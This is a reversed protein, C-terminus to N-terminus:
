ISEVSSRNIFAVAVATLIMGVTDFVIQKAVFTGPLPQTAYNNLYFPITILLVAAIGFMVGQSLWPVGQSIGQRYIWAFAFGKVLYTVLLFPFFTHVEAGSRYHDPLEHHDAHLLLGHAIFSYLALIISAIAGAIWFKKDM